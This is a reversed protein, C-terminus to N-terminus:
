QLKAYESKAAILIPIDPDADKWLALFDQYANKAKVTDGQLVYARALGLHALAGTACNWLLGRHDLIKQFEAAALQGQQASLYAEARVYVPYLCSNTASGSLMGIEYPAAAQLLEISRAGNKRVTEIQARITPLWVSQVVTDQPFHKALDDALSQTHAGDGALAYALAAQSEADHSGPALAVASAADQRAVDANDFLAERIAANAQWLAGPEKEDGHRASEVAQRSLERSKGLTGSWAETDSELSLMWDEAGPKGVAWDAQQKMAATNGQFFALAYLNLHLPIQELKRKLAEDTTSRAEDFRNLALYIQGLNGYAIVNNPELQLAERTESAAKEYQGLIMYNSALDYYATDDRPYAQIWLEYTQNSKELEGTVLTYYYSTISFKERETVRDRLDFAKKLYDTALRPQNLNSYSVGLGDYALAFAPDLEIARKYFPIAEADGKERHTNLGLTYAKLAELSNTTAQALPVDFKQVSSLSEGVENRLKTAAQGLAPLVQEKGAATVQERALVDGSLCNVAQLGIVYQTGLTAISGALYAKSEARECVERALDRTLREDPSHTMQRLTQRVKSDSLINLFPSQGLDVALAQKLTDDFVSDGTTNAFDALVITDKETLAHARRAFYLWGGVALGIVVVAVGAITVWKFSRPQRAVPSALSAHAATTTAARSVVPVSVTAEPEASATTRGTETDRELRQLDTRIDAAHQYREDKDKHLAKNIIEELRPPINPNISRAPVPSRTLVAEIIVGGTGGSFSQRGTAMEYLLLGLSFIDTRPDLNDGRIQEPSMYAPTGSIIGVISTFEGGEGGSDLGAGVVGKPVLKALGFDLVKAQGRKTVFINAPKIDRHIIGEAHAADLAEAIQMGLKLIEELPLAKGRIHNRLTEGDLFEMAIFARGDQEGIDYITCIGPHNLASAARAERRFRELAQPEQTPGEPLFKLAVARDLRGDHAKYVIGMGGGGLKEVIRYHSITQGIM